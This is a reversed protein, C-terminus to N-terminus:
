RSPRGTRPAEGEIEAPPEIVIRGGEFDITPAIQKTFPILLTEDGGESLIELIDGAGHNTLSVVRGLREGSVAVAELGVLDDYYFEDEGPKPLQDRPVFIEVGTLAAAAERTEVGKVRVALMGGNLLRLSEFVFVRSRTADTLPGYAGIAQPDRTHSKVRTEGGVGRPAGFAGVLILRDARL